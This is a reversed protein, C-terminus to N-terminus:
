CFLHRLRRIAQLTREVEEPANYFHLSFRLTNMWAAVIIQEERLANIAAQPDRVRVCVMPGEHGAPTAVDLGMERLGEGFPKALAQSHAQIESTGVDSIIQIGASAAFISGIPQLGSEFRVATPSYDLGEESVAFIDRQAFWGTFMPELHPIRDQRVFLLAVGGTSGLLYKMCGTVLFDVNTERVDTHVVGASHYGDVFVMAGRNHCLDALRTVDCHEGTAHHVQHGVVLLTHDDLARVFADLLSEGPRRTVFEVEAGRKRQALWIHAMTPFEDADLLIKRRPGDFDLASALVATGTSACFTVAIEPPTANVLSAFRARVEEVKPLWLNWPAGSADWQDLYESFAARVAPSLAGKSCSNFYLSHQVLPFNSRLRTLDTSSLM